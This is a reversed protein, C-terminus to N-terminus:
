RDDTVLGLNVLATVISDVQLQTTAGTISQRDVPAVNFFGLQANKFAISKTAGDNMEVFDGNTSTTLRIQGGTVGGSGAQILVIGGSGTASFGGSILVNGGTDESAPLAQVSGGTTNSDFNGGNLTTGPNTGAGVLIWRSLIGSYQITAAKGGDLLLSFNFRNAEDSDGSEAVFNIIQASSSNFLTVRRGRIGGRMGTINLDGNPTIDIFSANSFNVTEGAGPAWNDFQGFDEGVVLEDDCVAGPFKDCNGAGRLLLGM